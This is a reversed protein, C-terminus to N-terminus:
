PYPPWEWLYVARTTDLVVRGGLMGRVRRPVPEMHDVPTIPQPYDPM